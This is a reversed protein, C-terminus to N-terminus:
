SMLLNPNSAFFGALKKHGAASILQVAGLIDYAGFTHGAQNYGICTMPSVFLVDSETQAVDKFIDRKYNKRCAFPM